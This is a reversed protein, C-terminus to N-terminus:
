IARSLSVTTTCSACASSGHVQCAPSSRQLIGIKTSRCFVVIILSVLNLLVFYFYYIQFIGMIITGHYVTSAAETNSFIPDKTAGNIEVGKNQVSALQIRPQDQQEVTTFSRYKPADCLEEEPRNITAHTSLSTIDVPLDVPLFNNRMLLLLDCALACHMRHLPRHNKHAHVPIHSSESSSSSSPLCFPGCRLGPFKKEIEFLLEHSNLGGRFACFVNPNKKCNFAHIAVFKYDM